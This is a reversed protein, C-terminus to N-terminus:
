KDDILKVDNRLYHDKPLKSKHYEEAIEILDHKLEESEIVKNRFRFGNALKSIGWTGAFGAVGNGIIMPNLLLALSAPALPIGLFLSTVAAASIGGITGLGVDAIKSRSKEKQTGEIRNLKSEVEYTDPLEVTISYKSKFRVQQNQMLFPRSTIRKSGTNKFINKSLGFLKSRNRLIVSM